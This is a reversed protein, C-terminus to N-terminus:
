HRAPRGTGGNRGKLINYLERRGTYTKFYKERQIAEERTAYEEKYILRYPVYPKTSGVKGKNHLTLRELYNKSHGIYKRGYSISEIVSTYYM